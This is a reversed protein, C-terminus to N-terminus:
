RFIPQNQMMGFGSQISGTEADKEYHVSLSWNKAVILGTVFSGIGEITSEGSNLYNMLGSIDDKEVFESIKDVENKESYELNCCCVLLANKLALIEELATALEMIIISNEDTIQIHSVTFDDLTCQLIMLQHCLSVDEDFANDNIFFDDDEDAFENRLRDNAKVEGLHTEIKKFSPMVLKKQASGPTSEVVVVTQFDKSDIHSYVKCVANFNKHTIKQPSIIMRTQKQESAYRDIGAKIEERSLSTIDM